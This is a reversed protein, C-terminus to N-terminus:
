FAFLFMCFVLGPGSRARNGSPGIGLLAFAVVLVSGDAFVWVSVECSDLSICVFLHAWM